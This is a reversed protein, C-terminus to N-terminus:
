KTQLWQEIAKVADMYFARYTEETVYGIHPTALVKGLSRLPHNQPLPETNYVDLAAGAIRKTQLVTLLAAEDIIPGRSTNILYTNKVSTAPELGAEGLHGTPMFSLNIGNTKFGLHKATIYHGTEHVCIHIIRQRDAPWIQNPKRPLM